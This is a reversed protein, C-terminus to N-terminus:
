YALMCFLGLTLICYRISILDFNLVGLVTHWFIIIIRIKIRILFDGRATGIPDFSGFLIIWPSHDYTCHYVNGLSMSCQGWTIYCVLRHNYRFDQTDDRRAIWWWVYLIPSIMCHLDYFTLRKGWSCSLVRGDPWVLLFWPSSELEVGHM